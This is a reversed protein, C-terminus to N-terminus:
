VGNSNDDPINDFLSSYTSSNEEQDKEYIYHEIVSKDISSEDSMGYSQSNRGHRGSTGPMDGVWSLAHASSM